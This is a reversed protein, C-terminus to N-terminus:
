MIEQIVLTGTSYVTKGDRSNMKFSIINEKKEMTLVLLTGPRVLSTFKIRRIESVGTGIGFHRSAFKLVLDIQGVAPLIPFGPFHGDFYGSDGQVTFELKLSNGTKEIINEGSM